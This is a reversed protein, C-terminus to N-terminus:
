ERAVLYRWDEAPLVGSTSFLRDVIEAKCSPDARIKYLLCYLDLGTLACVNSRSIRRVLADPFSDAARKDLPTQRYTGIVMLGRCELDTNPDSLDLGLKCLKESYRVLDPDRQRDEPSFTLAKNVDAVWSECERLHSERAQGDLGKVEAAALRKGDWVLLDARPHPGEVVNLGFERL